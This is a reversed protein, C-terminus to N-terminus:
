LGEELRGTSQRSSHIQEIIKEPTRDDEWTGCIRLFAETNGTEDDKRGAPGHLFTMIVEVEEKVDVPELLRIKKGDYIGRVSLM